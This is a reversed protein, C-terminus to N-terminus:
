LGGGIFGWRVEVNGEGYLDRLAALEKSFVELFSETEVAPTEPDIPAEGEFLMFRTTQRENQFCPEHGHSSPTLYDHLGLRTFPGLRWCGAKQLDDRSVEIRRREIRIVAHDRKSGCEPCFATRLDKGHENCVKSSCTLVGWDILGTSNLCRVYAGLYMNKM